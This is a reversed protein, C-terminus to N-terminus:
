SEVKRPTEIESPITVTFLYALLKSKLKHKYKMSLLMKREYIADHLPGHIHSGLFTLSELM